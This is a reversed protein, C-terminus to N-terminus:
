KRGGGTGALLAKLKALQEAESEQFGLTGALRNDGDMLYVYASHAITYSGDDEPVKNYFANWSKAIAAIQAESGTLAIIRPDFSALYEHLRAPTDREPDVSVFIVKIRDADAGLSALNNSMELLTTPCIDPCHTFGFFIAFPRGALASSAFPQGNHDTLKFSGGPSGITQALAGGAHGLAGCLGAVTALLLRALLGAGAADLCGRINAHPSRAPM